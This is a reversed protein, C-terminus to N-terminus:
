FIYNHLIDKGKEQELLSLLKKIFDVNVNKHFEENKSLTKFFKMMELKYFFARKSKSYKDLTKVFKFPHETTKIQETFAIYNLLILKFYYIYEKLSENKVYKDSYLTHEYKLKYYYVVDLHNLYQFIDVLNDFVEDM